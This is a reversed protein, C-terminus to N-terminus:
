MCPSGSASTSALEQRDKTGQSLTRSKRRVVLRASELCDRALTTPQWTFHLLGSLNFESFCHFHRLIFIAWPTCVCVGLTYACVHTFIHLFYVHINVINVYVYACVHTKCVYRKCMYIVCSEISEEMLLGKFEWEPM